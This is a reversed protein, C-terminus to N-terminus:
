TQDVDAQELRLDLDLDLGQGIVDTNITLVQVQDTM